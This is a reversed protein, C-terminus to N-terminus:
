NLKTDTRWALHGRNIVIFIGDVKKKKFKETKKTKNKKIDILLRFPSKRKLLTM